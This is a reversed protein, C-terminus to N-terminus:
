RITFIFCRHADQLIDLTTEICEHYVAESSFFICDIPTAGLWVWLDDTNYESSNTVIMKNCYENIQPSGYAICPYCKSELIQTLNVSEEVTSCVVISSNIKISEFVRDIYSVLNESAM